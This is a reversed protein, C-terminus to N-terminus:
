YQHNNLNYPLKSVGHIKRQKYIEHILRQLILLVLLLKAFVKSQTNKKFVNKMWNRKNFFFQYFFHGKEKLIDFKVKVNM